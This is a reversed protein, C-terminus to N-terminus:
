KKKVPVTQKYTENPKKILNAKSDFRGSKASKIIKKTKVTKAM